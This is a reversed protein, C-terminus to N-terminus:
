EGIGKRIKSSELFRRVVPEHGNACAACLASGYDGGIINPDANANLLQDVISAHGRAAAAQLATAYDGGVANLDVRGNEILLRVLEENGHYAAVHLLYSFRGSILRGPRAGSKLLKSLDDRATDAEAVSLFAQEFRM